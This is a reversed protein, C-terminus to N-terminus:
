IFEVHSTMDEPSLVDYILLLAHVIVGIATQQPAYIIRVCPRMAGPLPLPQHVLFDYCSVNRIKCNPSWFYRTLNRAGWEWRIVSTM